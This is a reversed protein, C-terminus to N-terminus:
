SPRLSVPNSSIWGIRHEERKIRNYETRDKLEWISRMEPWIVELLMSEQYEGPKPRGDIYMIPIEFTRGALEFIVPKIGCRNPPIM